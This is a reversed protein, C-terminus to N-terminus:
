EAKDAGGGSAPERPGSRQGAVNDPRDGAERSGRWLRDVVAKRHEASETEDGPVIASLIAEIKRLEQRFSLAISEAVQRVEGPRPMFKGDGEDGTRFRKCAEILAFAPVGLLDSRYARLRALNEAETANQSIMTLHLGSMETTIAQESAPRLAHELHAGRQTLM